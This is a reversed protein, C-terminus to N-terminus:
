FRWTYTLNLGYEHTPNGDYVKRSFSIGWLLAHTDSFDHEQQYRISWIAQNAFDSQKYMGATLFLKHVFAKDYIRWLTQETMHTVSLNIDHDPNFYPADERSNRSTYLDLFIRMKWNNKVFLGQEYDFLGEERRNGDSFKMRSLFLHYSRWESERYTISAEVKDSDIGFVRARLPVETTFSDYSLSFRWHDDPSFNIMTLSGFEDGNNYDISFQQTVSWSSNFIHHIGLGARRFFRTDVEDSSQQWLTSAYLTTYLSIPKSLTIGAMIDQFGDEDRVFAFDTTLEAMEDVELLRNLRLVDKEKPQAILLKKALDRADEKFALENLAIAKGILAKYNEPELTEIIKFERLAKRPWGRWLYVHALGTRIGANAPAEEYLNWFYEQAERYREEYTLLWGRDVAIELKPWNPRASDGTGLFYPLERDIADLLERAEKWRSLEQLTYFKGRRGDFSAPDEELAKDYLELAKYPQELYLYAKAVNELVWSPPLIGEKNFDEYAKVTKEMDRDETLAVTYDYRARFNERNELLPLLISMAVAPEKWNIRNVAMDGKISNLLQTDHPLTSYAEQLALSSAGLDSLDQLKLKLAVPNGPSIELIRDYEQIALWFEKSKEYLFARAFRIELNDPQAHQLNDLIEIAKIEQGEASLCYVLGINARVYDPRGNLVRQYYFKAKEIDGNKFYAWAIWSLLYDSYYNLSLAASEFVKIAEEYEKNLILVLLYDSRALEDKQAAVQLESLMAQQKEFPLSAILDDRIKYVYEDEVDKRSALAHYLKLSELYNGQRLLLDAKTLAFFVSDPSKELFKELSELAKAYENLSILSLVLGKQAEEDLPTEELAAQYLSFAKTFEKKEYYAKAINRMLYARRPFSLPLNEYMKIADDYMGNWVLIALYDSVIVPHEMPESIFPSLLSLAEKYKSEKILERARELSTEALNKDDGSAYSTMPFLTSFLLSVCILIGFIPNRKIYNNKNNKM